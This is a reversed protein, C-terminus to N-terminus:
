NLNENILEIKKAIKLGYVIDVIFWISILANAVNPLFYIALGIIGGSLLTFFIFQNAGAVQRRFQKFLPDFYILLVSLALAGMFYLYMGKFLMAVPLVTMASIYMFERSSIKKV